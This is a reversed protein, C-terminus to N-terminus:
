MSRVSITRGTGIPRFNPHTENVIPRLRDPRVMASFRADANKLDQELSVAERRKATLRKDDANFLTHFAAVLPLTIIFLKLGLSFLREDDRM